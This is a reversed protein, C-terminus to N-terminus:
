QVVFEMWNRVMERPVRVVESAMREDLMKIASRIAVRGERCTIWKAENQARTEKLKSELRVFCDENTTWVNKGGEYFGNVITWDCDLRITPLSQALNHCLGSLDRADGNLRTWDNFPSVALETKFNKVVRILHQAAQEQGLTVVRVLDKKEEPEEPEGTAPRV